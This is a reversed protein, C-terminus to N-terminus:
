AEERTRAVHSKLGVITADLAGSYMTDIVDKAPAPAEERDPRSTGAAPHDM